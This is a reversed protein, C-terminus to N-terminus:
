FDDVLANSGHLGNQSLRAGPEIFNLSLDKDSLYSLHLDGCM